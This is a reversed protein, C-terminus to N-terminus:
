PFRNNDNTKTLYFHNCSSVELSPRRLYIAEAQRVLLEKEDQGQSKPTPPSWPRGGGLTSDSGTEDEEALNPLRLQEEDVLAPGAAV